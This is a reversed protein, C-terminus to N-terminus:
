LDLPTLSKLTLVSHLLCVNLLLNLRNSVLRCSPRWALRESWCVIRDKGDRRTVTHHKVDVLSLFQGTSSLKPFPSHLETHHKGDVSLFQGTSSLKLFPSHLETHHKGDLSLFQGTSSLKPFPSHLETHPTKRGNM